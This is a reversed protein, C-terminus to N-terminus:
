VRDNSPEKEEMGSDADNATETDDANEAGGEPREEDTLFEAVAEVAQAQEELQNEIEAAPEEPEPEAAPTEETEPEAEPTNIEAPAPEPEAPTDAIPQLLNKAIEPNLEVDFPEEIMDAFRPFSNVEEFGKKWSALMSTISVATVGNQTDIEGTILRERKMTNNSMIGVAQLFNSFIYNHLEIHQTIYQASGASSVPNVQLKEVLDSRLIKFPAGAYMEKLINEGAIAQTDSDATFFNQVRTNIQCCNISVITDALLVATQHILSYLGCELVGAYLKDIETNAVLVCDQKNNRFDRWFCTASGLVPNAIIWNVPIYNEDPQGGISGICSYLKGDFDKFSMIGDLILNTKLYTKNVTDGRAKGRIIFCSEVIGLLWKFYFRYNQEFDCVGKGSYRDRWSKAM